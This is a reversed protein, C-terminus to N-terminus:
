SEFVSAKEESLSSLKESALSLSRVTARKCCSHLLSSVDSFLVTHVLRPVLVTRVLPPEFTMCFTLIFFSNCLLIFQFFLPFFSIVFWCCWWKSFIEFDINIDWLFIQCKQDKIDRVYNCGCIESLINSIISQTFITWIRLKEPRYKGM